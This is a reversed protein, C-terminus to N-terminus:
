SARAVALYLAGGVMQMELEAVRDAEVELDGQLWRLHLDLIGGACFSAVLELEDDPLDHHPQTELYYRNVQVQHRWVRDRATAGARGSLVALFLRRERGIRKTLETLVPRLARGAASGYRGEVAERFAEEEETLLADLEGLLVSGVEDYHAYFTPRSVGARRTLASVSVSEAGEEFLDLLAERLAARTRVQRPDNM